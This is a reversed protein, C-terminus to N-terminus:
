LRVREGFEGLFESQVWCDHFRAHSAVVLRARVADVMREAAIGFSQGRHCGSREVGDGPRWQQSPTATPRAAVTMGADEVGGTARNRPQISRACHTGGVARRLVTSEMNGVGECEATDGPGM